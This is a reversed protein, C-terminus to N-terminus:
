IFVHHWALSIISGITKFNGGVPSNM